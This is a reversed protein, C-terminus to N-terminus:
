IPKPSKWISVLLLLAVTIDIPAWLARDLGLPMFPNFLVAVVIFTGAWAPRSAESFVIGTWVAVGCVVWRLLTYYGYPNPALAAFLLGAALLRGVAFLSSGQRSAPTPPEAAVVVKSVHHLEVPEVPKSDVPLASSDWFTAAASRAGCATCRLRPVANNLLTLLDADPVDATDRLMAELESSIPTTRKCDLCQIAIPIKSESRHDPPTPEEFARPPPGSDFEFVHEYFDRYDIRDPENCKHLQGLPDAARLKADVWLQTQETGEALRAAVGFWRLAAEKAQLRVCVDGLAYAVRCDPYEAFLETLSERPDGAHLRYCEDIRQQLDM